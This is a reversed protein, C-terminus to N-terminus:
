VSVWTITSKYTTRTFVALEDRWLNSTYNPLLARISLEGVSMQLKFSELPSVGLFETHTTSSLKIFPSFLYPGMVTDLRPGGRVKIRGQIFISSL